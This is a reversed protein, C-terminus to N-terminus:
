ALSNNALNPIKSNMQIMEDIGHSNFISITNSYKTLIKLGHESSQRFKYWGSFHDSNRHIIEPKRPNIVIVGMTLKWNQVKELGPNVLLSLFITM